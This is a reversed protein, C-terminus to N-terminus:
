QGHVFRSYSVTLGMKGLLTPDATYAKYFIHCVLKAKLAAIQSSYISTNWINVPADPAIGINAHIEGLKFKVL